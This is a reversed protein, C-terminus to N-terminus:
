GEGRHGPERMAVCFCAGGVLYLVGMICLMIIAIGSAIEFPIFIALIPIICIFIVCFILCASWVINMAKKARTERM